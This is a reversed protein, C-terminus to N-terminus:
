LARPEGVIRYLTIAVAPLLLAVAIAAFFAGRSVEAPVVFEELMAEGLATRKTAYEADSLIGADRAENLAKLRRRTRAAPDDRAVRARLLSPLVFALAAALMLAAFLLFWMM